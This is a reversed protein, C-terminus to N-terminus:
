NLFTMFKTNEENKSAFKAKERKQEQLFCISKLKKHIPGRVSSLIVCCIQISGVVSQCHQSTMKIM